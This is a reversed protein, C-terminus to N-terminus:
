DRQEAADHPHGRGSWLPSDPQAFPSLWALAGAFSREIQLQACGKPLPEDPSSQFAMSVM